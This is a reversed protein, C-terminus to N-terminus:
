KKVDYAYNEKLIKYCTELISIKPKYELFNNIKSIDAQWDVIVNKTNDKEIFHNRYDLDFELFLLRVLDRAYITEGSAFIFDENLEKHLTPSVFNNQDIIEYGLIKALKIFLKKM